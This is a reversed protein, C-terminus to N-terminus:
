LTYKYVFSKSNKHIEVDGILNAGNKEYFTQASKQSEGTVIKIQKIKENGFEVKAYEFLIKGIGTGRYKKDVCFNLIESDIDLEPNKSKRFPYFLTELLKIVFSLSFLKRLLYPTLIIAKKLFFEKYFSPTSYSIAIFAIITNKKDLSVLLSGYVSRALTKYLDALLRSDLTSLFGENIADKHIEALRMYEDLSETGHFKVINHNISM